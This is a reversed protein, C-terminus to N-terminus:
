LHSINFCVINQECVDILNTGFVVLFILYNTRFRLRHLWVASVNRLAPSVVDRNFGSILVHGKQRPDYSSSVRM